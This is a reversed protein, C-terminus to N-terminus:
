DMPDVLVVRKEDSDVIVKEKKQELKETEKERKMEKKKLVVFKLGGFKNRQTCPTRGNYTGEM